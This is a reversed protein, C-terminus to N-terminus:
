RDPRVDVSVGPVRVSVGPGDDPPPSNRCGLLTLTLLLAALPYLMRM